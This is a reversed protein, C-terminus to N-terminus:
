RPSADDRDEEPARTPLNSSEDITLLKHEKRVVDADLHKSGCASLFKISFVDNPGSHRTRGDDVNEYRQDILGLLLAHQRVFKRVGKVWRYIASTFAPGDDAFLEM